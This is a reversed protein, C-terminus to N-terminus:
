DATNPPPAQGDPAALLEALLTGLVDRADAISGVVWQRAPSGDALLRIRLGEPERWARVVIVQYGPPDMRPLIL